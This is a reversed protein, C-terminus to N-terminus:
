DLIAEVLRIISLIRGTEADVRVIRNDIVAYRDGNPPNGLGYLGPRTIMHIDRLSFVEGVALNRKKAQGPPVCAPSKKALGPPCDRYVHRNASKRTVTMAHAAPKKHHKGGRDHDKAFSSAPALLLTVGLVTATLKSLKIM